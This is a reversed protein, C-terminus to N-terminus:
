VHVKDCFEHAPLKSLCEEIGSRVGNEVLILEVTYEDPIRINCLSILTERLSDLRSCTAIIISVSANMADRLSTVTAHSGDGWLDGRVAHGPRAAGFVSKARRVWDRACKRRM